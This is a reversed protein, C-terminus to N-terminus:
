YQFRTINKPLSDEEGGWSRALRAREDVVRTKKTMTTMMTAAATVKSWWPQM